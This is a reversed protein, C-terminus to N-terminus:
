LFPSFFEVIKDVAKVARVAEEIAESTRRVEKLASDATKVASQLEGLAVLYDADNRDLEEELVEDLVTRLMKITQRLKRREVVDTCNLRLKVLTNVLDVLNGRLTDM